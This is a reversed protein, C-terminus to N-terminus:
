FMLVPLDVWLFYLLSLSPKTLGVVTTVLSGNSCLNHSYPMNEKVFGPSILSQTHLTVDHRIFQLYQLCIKRSLSAAVLLQCVRERM